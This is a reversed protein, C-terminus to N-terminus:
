GFLDSVTSRATAFADEDAFADFNELTILPKRRGSTGKSAGRASAAFEITRSSLLPGTYPHEASFKPSVGELRGREAGGRLCVLAPTCDVKSRRCVGVMEEREVDVWCLRTSSSEAAEDYHRRFFRSPPCWKATFLVVVRKKGRPTASSPRGSPRTRSRWLATSATPCRRRSPGTSRSPLTWRRQGRLDASEWDVITVDQAAANEDICEIEFIVRITVGPCLAPVRCLARPMRYTSEDFTVCVPVQLLASAGVARLELVLHFYPGLGRVTANLEVTGEDGNAGPSGGAGGALEGKKLLGAYAKAATLQLKVIDKQFQRHMRPALERERDTQELYMRTKKPIALARRRPDPLMKVLLGGSRTVVVLTNDERGYSGCCLASVVEGVRIVDVLEKDRYGRIEGTALAALVVNVVRTKRITLLELNTVPAPMRLSFTKRGKQLYSHLQSDATAVYIAKEVRVLGCVQTELEIHPRRIVATGRHEGISVTYLRADRCAVIIRWDVDFCGSVRMTTPVAPLQVECLKTTASPDLIILLKSETGIVLSSMADPEEVMKPMTGMCTIVTDQRLPFRVVREVHAALQDEDEMPLMALSRASLKAGDDHAAKLMARVTAPDAEGDVAQRWISHENADLEVPPATFKFFPRLNKYVFVHPGSAVGVAPVRPKKEDM